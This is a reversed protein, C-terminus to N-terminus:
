FWFSGFCKNFVKSFGLINENLVLFPTEKAVDSHVLASSM